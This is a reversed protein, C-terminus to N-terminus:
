LSGLKMDVDNMGIRIRFRNLILEVIRKKISFPEFVAPPETGTEAYMESLNASENALTDLSLIKACWPENIAESEITDM